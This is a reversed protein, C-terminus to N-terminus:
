CNHTRLLAMTNTIAGAIPAPAAPALLSGRHTPTELHELHV